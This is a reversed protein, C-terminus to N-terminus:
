LSVHETFYKAGMKNIVKHFVKQNEKSLDKFLNDYERRIDLNLARLFDPMRRISLEQNDERTIHDIITLVRGYTVVNEAFSVANNYIDIKEKSPIFTKRKQETFKESKYKAIVRDGYIDRMEVRPKIVLGEIVNDKAIVGNEQGVLSICNNIKTKLEDISINEIISWPVVRFDVQNCIELVDGWNVFRGDSNRIDFIRIQKENNCTYQIGKQVGAGFYEGYFVYDHFDNMKQLKQEVQEKNICYDVFDYFEKKQQNNKYIIGNRSGLILGGNSPSYMMRINTGHIKESLVCEKQLIDISTKDLNRISSYKPFNM